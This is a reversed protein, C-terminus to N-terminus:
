AGDLLEDRGARARPIEDGRDPRVDTERAELDALLDGGLEDGGVGFSEVGDDVARAWPRLDVECGDETRLEPAHAQGLDVVERPVGEGLGREEVAVSTIAAVGAPM